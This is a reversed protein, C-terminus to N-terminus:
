NNAHQAMYYAEEILYYNGPVSSKNSDYWYDLSPVLKWEKLRLYVEMQKRSINNM